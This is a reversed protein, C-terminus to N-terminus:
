CRSVELQANANLETDNPITAPYCIYNPQAYAVLPNNKLIEIANLVSEKSESSLKIIYVTRAMKRLRDLKNKRVRRRLADLNEKKGKSVRELSKKNAVEYSPDYEYSSDFLAVLPEYLDKVEAINLEPFLEKPRSRSNRPKLGVIVEGPMFDCNKPDNEVFGNPNNHTTDNEM